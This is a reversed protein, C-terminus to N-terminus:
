IAETTAAEASLCFCAAFMDLIATRAKCGEKLEAIRAKYRYREDNGSFAYRELITLIWPETLNGTGLFM